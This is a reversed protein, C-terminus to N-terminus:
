ATQTAKAETNFPAIQNNFQHSIPDEEVRGNRALLHSIFLEAFAPEEHIVRHSDSVVLKPGVTRKSRDTLLASTGAPRSRAM